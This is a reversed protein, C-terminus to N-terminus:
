STALYEIADKRKYSGIVNSTDVITDVIEFHRTIPITSRNTTNSIVRAASAIAAHSLRAALDDNNNHNAM